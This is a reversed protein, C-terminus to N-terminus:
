EEDFPTGDLSKGPDDKIQDRRQGQADMMRRQKLRERGGVIDDLVKFNQSGLPDKVKEKLIRVKGERELKQAWRKEMACKEGRVNPGSNITLLRVTVFEKQVSPKPPRKNVEPQSM